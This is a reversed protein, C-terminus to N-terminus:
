LEVLVMVGLKLAVPVNVRVPVGSLVGVKVTVTLGVAVWVAKPLAVNVPVMLGVPLMVGVQVTLLVGRGVCVASTGTTSLSLTNLGKCPFGKITLKLARSVPRAVTRTKLRALSFIRSIKSASTVAPWHTCHWHLPPFM